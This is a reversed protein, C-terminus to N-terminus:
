KPALQILSWVCNIPGCPGFCLFKGLFFIILSIISGIKETKESSLFWEYHFSAFYSSLLLYIPVYRWMPFAMVTNPLPMFCKQLGFWEAMKQDKLLTVAKLERYESYKSHSYKQIPLKEIIEEWIKRQREWM